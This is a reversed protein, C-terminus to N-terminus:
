KGPCVTSQMVIPARKEKKRGRELHTANGHRFPNVPSLFYESLSLARARASLFAFRHQSWRSVDRRPLGRSGRLCGRYWRAPAGYGALGICSKRRFCVPYVIPPWQGKKGRGPHVDSAVLLVVAFFFLPFCVSRLIAHM